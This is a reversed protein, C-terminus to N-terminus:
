FPYDLSILSVTTKRGLFHNTVYTGPNKTAKRYLYAQNSKALKKFIQKVKKAKKGGMTRRMAKKSKKASFEELQKATKYKWDNQHRKASKLKLKQAQLQYALSGTNGKNAEELEKLQKRRDKSNATIEGLEKKLEKGLECYDCLDSLRHPLKFEPGV